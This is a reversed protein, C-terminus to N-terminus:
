EQFQKVKALVRIISELSRPDPKSCNRWSKTIFYVTKSHERLKRQTATCPQRCYM